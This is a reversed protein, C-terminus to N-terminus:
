EDDIIMRIVLSDTEMILPHLQREMCFALGKVIAKAEAVINTEEGIEKAKAFVLNEEHDRVCFGYSSPGANGRVKALYYLAKNVDHIVRNYSVGGGHKMTNRIKWLKWIIVAPAAQFSPKLKLCCKANWWERIVRHVGGRRWLDDTPVKGKWVRWLFFFIKFPLRKTWLKAFEPNIPERHRLIRWASSVTFKGFFTPMWRPSDWYDNANTYHVEQRINYRWWLKAFLAKSVDELSRFGVGGEEKLICLNQWKTWHMNRGEKKNSWIFRAFTKHLHELVNNPPDLVLLIHTPMSQLVSSILTAKGGNSLLKGKWSHLKAEVKQILDNYYEKRRRTYFILCGLYTFPFEGKSFGTINGVTNVLAGAVNVHMYYSSKAKNILQGSTHEYQALVDVIKYSSCKSFKSLCEWLSQDDLLRNELADLVFFLVAVSWNGM